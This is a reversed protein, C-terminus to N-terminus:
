RDTIKYYWTIGNFLVSDWGAPAAAGVKLHIVQDSTQCMGVFPPQEATVGVPGLLAKDTANTCHAPDELYADPDGGTLITPIAM